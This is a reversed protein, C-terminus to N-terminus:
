PRQVGGKATGKLALIPTDQDGKVLIESFREKLDEHL